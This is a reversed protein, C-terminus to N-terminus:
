DRYPIIRALLIMGVLAFLFNNQKNFIKKM